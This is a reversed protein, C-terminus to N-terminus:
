EFSHRLELQEINENDRYKLIEEESVGKFYAIYDMFNQQEYYNNILNDVSNVSNLLGSFFASGIGIVFIISIFGGISTKIDRLLKLLLTKM